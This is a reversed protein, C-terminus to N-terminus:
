ALPQASVLVSAGHERDLAGPPTTMLELANRGRWTGDCRYPEFTATSYRDFLNSQSRRVRAVADRHAQQRHAFDVASQPTRWVTFSVPQMYPRDVLPVGLLMEESSPLRQLIGPAAFGWM